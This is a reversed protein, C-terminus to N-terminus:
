QDSGKDTKGTWLRRLRKGWGKLFGKRDGRRELPQTGILMAVPRLEEYELCVVRLMATLPLFIVMGAIGWVLAGLILSLIAALANVDVSSGLIKPSLINSEVLQISWFMATVVLPVWLADHSMFAYLVPITAGFTTGIYPIISLSAALFGFLFPSDIGIIWLGISNAVGLILILVLMGSLYKQGVSQVSQLMHAVKERNRAPAFHLFANTLGKRYLLLLFTYIVTSFAQALFTTTNNFTKGVLSAGSQRAWQELQRLLDERKLPEAFSINNNVFLIVDTFLGTLKEQFDSFASTLELIQASFFVISVTVILFLLFLSLLAAVGRSLGWSEIRRALPLLIFAILLAFALPILIAKALILVAFSGLVAALVYYTQQFSFKM